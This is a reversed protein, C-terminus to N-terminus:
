FYGKETDINLLSFIDAEDSKNDDYLLSIFKSFDQNLVWEILGWM